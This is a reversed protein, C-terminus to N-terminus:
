WASSSFGSGEVSFYAKKSSWQALGTIIDEWSSWSWSSLNNATKRPRFSVIPHFKDSRLPISGEKHVCRIKRSSSERGELSACLHSFGLTHSAMLSSIRLHSLAPIMYGMESLGHTLGTCTTGLFAPIGTVFFSLPSSSWVRRGVFHLSHSLFPGSRRAM